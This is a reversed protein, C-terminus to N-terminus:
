ERNTAEPGPEERGERRPPVGPRQRAAGRHLALMGAKLHLHHTTFHHM